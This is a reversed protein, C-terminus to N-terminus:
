GSYKMNKPKLTLQNGFANSSARSKVPVLHDSFKSMGRLNMPKNPDNKLGTEGYMLRRNKEFNIQQQKAKMARDKKLKDCEYDFTDEWTKSQNTLNVANRLSSDYLDLLSESNTPINRPDRSSKTGSIVIL